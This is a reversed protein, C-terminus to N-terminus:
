VNILKVKQQSITSELNYWFNNIIPVSNLNNVGLGRDSECM